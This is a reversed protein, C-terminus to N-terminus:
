QHINLEDRVEAVTQVFDMKEEVATGLVLLDAGSLYAQRAKKETDIGGGVILPVSISKTVDAIMASPVCDIAGSGADLYIIKMGLFEGAMATCMAIDSKHTPIPFTQSIHAVTTNANNGVLIYGTPLVELPSNKLVPAAAVHQGILLEPNRGSILSLLLIADASKDIHLNSGPFLVVPIQTNSKILAITESLSDKILLSGGVFIFDVGHDNCLQVLAALSSHNAVKDPDVLVALSKQNRHKRTQLVELIM